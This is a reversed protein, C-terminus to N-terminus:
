AQAIQRHQGDKEDQLACILARDDSTLLRTKKNVDTVDAIVNCWINIVVSYKFACKKKQRGIPRHVVLTLPAIKNVNQLSPQVVSHDLKNQVM